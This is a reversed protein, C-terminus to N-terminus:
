VCGCSQRIVLKTPLLTLPNIPEGRILKELQKIAERGVQEIPAQVTTLPPTLYRSLCTDDFGVVAVDEPVRKGAQKLATLVGLAAEDDGAFVADFELGEILLNEVAHQAQDRDFGGAAVLRPDFPIDHTTLSERYGMERWYSDEHGEQGTLFVIRRYHHVQILHDVLECAGHKNEITVCPINLGPPSSRHILVVPFGIKNLRALEGQPLIDVFVVVGDTNHEGLPYLMNTDTAREEHTAYILLSFGERRAEIELGRLMPSFFDGSIDSFLLGITNTKRSALVQAASHPRYNLEAIAARVQAETEPAVPATQNIVRSVTAISVGARRAVDEITARSRTKSTRQSIV